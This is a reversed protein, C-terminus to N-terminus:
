KNKIINRYKNQYRLALKEDGGSMTAIVARVSKGKRKGELVKKVLDREEVDNFEAVKQVEFPKGGLYKDAFEADERSKRAIAYYMNRVTGKSKGSKEAFASFVRSLPEGERKGLFDLLAVIDRQKFGYIKEM